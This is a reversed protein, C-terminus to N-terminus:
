YNWRMHLASVGNWDWLVCLSIIIPIRVRGRGLEEIMVQWGM